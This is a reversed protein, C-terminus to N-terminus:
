SCLVSSQMCVLFFTLQKNETCFSNKNFKDQLALFWNWCFLARASICTGKRELIMVKWKNVLWSCLYLIVVCVWVIICEPNWAFNSLYMYIVSVTGQLGHRNQSATTCWLILYLGAKWCPLKKGSVLEQLVNVCLLESGCSCHPVQDFIPFCQTFDRRGCCEQIFCM